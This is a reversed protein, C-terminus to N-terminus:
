HIPREQWEEQEAQQKITVCVDRSGIVDCGIPDRHCTIGPLNATITSFSLITAAPGLSFILSGAPAIL